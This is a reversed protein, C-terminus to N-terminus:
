HQGPLKDKIKDMISKNEGTGDTGTHGSKGYNGDTTATTAHTESGTMGTTQQHDGHGGPLKEKINEGTVGAHGQQGYTGGTAQQHDGHGGPLKETISEVVGKKEGAGRGQHEM